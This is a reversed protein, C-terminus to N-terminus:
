RVGFEFLRFPVGCNDAAERKGASESIVIALAGLVILLTGTAGRPSAGIAILLAGMVAATAMFLLLDDQGVYTCVNGRSPGLSGAPVVFDPEPPRRFSRM